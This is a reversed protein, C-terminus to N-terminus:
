KPMLIMIMARGETYPMKEIEAIPSLEKALRDLVARGAEQRQMERGRFVMTVKAKDGRKLFEELHRKKFNYDHEDIHPHLKIEKLHIIKQKKRAEKAKKAQDYKYKTYDMVRCVPPSAAPAVEVLDLGANRAIQLAEPTPVVGRQNGQDDILRVKDIRIRENVRL